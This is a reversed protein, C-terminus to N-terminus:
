ARVSSLGHLRSLFSDITHVASGSATFHPTNVIEEEFSVTRWLEHGTVCHEAQLSTFDFRIKM